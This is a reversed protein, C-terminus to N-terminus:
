PHSVFKTKSTTPLTKKTVKQRQQPSSKRQKAKPTSDLTTDPIDFEFSQLPQQSGGREKKVSVTEKKNRRFKGGVNSVCKVIDLGEFILSEFVKMRQIPVAADLKSKWALREKEALSNEIKAYSRQLTISTPNLIEEDVPVVGDMVNNALLGQAVQQFVFASDSFSKIQDPHRKLSNHLFTSDDLEDTSSSMMSENNQAVDLLVVSKVAPKAFSANKSRMSQDPSVQNHSSSADYLTNAENLKKLRYMMSSFECFDITGGGDADVQRGFDEARERSLGMGMCRDVFASTPVDGSLDDNGGMDVFAKVVEPDETGCMLRFLDPNLNGDYTLAASSLFGEIDFDLGIDDIVDQLKQCPIPNGDNFYQFNAGIEDVAKNTSLHLKKLLAVVRLFVDFSMCGDVSPEYRCRVFFKTMDDASPINTVNMERLMARVGEEPTDTANFNAFVQRCLLIEASSLLRLHNVDKGVAARRGFSHAMMFRNVNRIRNVAGRFSFHFLSGARASDFADTKRRLTGEGGGSDIPSSIPKWYNNDM